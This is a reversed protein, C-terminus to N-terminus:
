LMTFPVARRLVSSHSRHQIVLEFISLSLDKTFSKFISRPITLMLTAKTGRDTSILGVNQLNTVKIKENGRILFRTLPQRFYLHTIDGKNLDKQKFPFPTVCLTFIKRLAWVEHPAKRGGKTSGFPIGGWGVGRKQYSGFFFESLARSTRVYTGCVCIHQCICILVKFVRCCYISHKSYYSYTLSLFFLPVQSRLGKPFSLRCHHTIM